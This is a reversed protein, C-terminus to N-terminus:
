IKFVHRKRHRSYKGVVEGDSLSCENKLPENWYWKNRDWLWGILIACPGEETSRRCGSHAEMVGPWLTSCIGYLPREGDKTQSNQLYLCPYRRRWLRAWLLFQSKTSHIFSHIFSHWVWPIRKKMNWYYKQLALSSIASLHCFTSYHSSLNKEGKFM